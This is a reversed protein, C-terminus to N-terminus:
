REKRRKKKRHSKKGTRGEKKLTLIMIGEHVNKAEKGKKRQPQLRNGGPRL